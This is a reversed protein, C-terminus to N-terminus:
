MWYKYINKSCECGCFKVKVNESSVNKGKMKLNYRYILGRLLMVNMEIAEAQICYSWSPKFKDKWQMKINFLKLKTSWNFLAIIIITSDAFIYLDFLIDNIYRRLL